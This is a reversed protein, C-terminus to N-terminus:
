FMQKFYNYLNNRHLSLCIKFFIVLCTIASALGAPNGPNLNLANILSRFKLLLFIDPKYGNGMACGTCILPARTVSTRFTFNNSFFCTMSRLAALAKGMGAIVYSKLGVNEVTKCRGFV